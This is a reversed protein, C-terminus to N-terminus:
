ELRYIFEQYGTKWGISKLRKYFAKDRTTWFHISKYKLNRAYKFLTEHGQILIDEPIGQGIFLHIIKLCDFDVHTTFFGCYKSKYFIIWLLLYGRLIDNLIKAHDAQFPEGNTHEKIANVGELLYPWAKLVAGINSIPYLAIDTKIDKDM